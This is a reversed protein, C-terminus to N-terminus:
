EKNRTGGGVWIVQQFSKGGITEMLEQSYKLYFTIIEVTV